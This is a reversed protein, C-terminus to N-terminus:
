ATEEFAKKARALFETIKEVSKRGPADEVGTSVDVSRAGSQAIATGVNEPTLGGALFWPKALRLGSLLRWDFPAGLGGPRAAGAPAKADFMLWDSVNEYARIFATIGAADSVGMVKMVAIGFRARLAAVREPPEAGHLQLMHPKIAAIAASIAEDDADVLLAVRQLAPPTALALARAREPALFRPSKEFFVFGGHTAGARAAAEAAQPTDLGCIKIANM